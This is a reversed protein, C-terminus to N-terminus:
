VEYRAHPVALTVPRGFAAEGEILFGAPEVGPAQHTLVLRDVNAARAMEGAQRASLHLVGSPEDEALMTAEVVALDFRPGLASLSWGPGTDASYALTRGSGTHEVRIALTEVYHETQSFTLALPGIEANAGDEIVHWSLTPEIEGAVKAAMARTEDTGYVTLGTRELGYKWATGLVTLDIWHDPHCHSLVVADIDEVDIHQQLNALTGSGLDVVVNVGDAQVLYGSCPEGPGPYSGSCGLVTLSLHDAGTVGV